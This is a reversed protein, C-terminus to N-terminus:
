LVWRYNHLLKTVFRENYCGTSPNKKYLTNGSMLRELFSLDLGHKIAIPSRLVPGLQKPDGTLVLLGGDKNRELDMVDLLGAIAIVCEPEVANGAEDIFVHSFHGYPFKASALRGATILTTAIVRYQQLQEKSPFEFM